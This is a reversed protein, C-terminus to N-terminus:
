SMIETYGVLRALRQLKLADGDKNMVIREATELPTRRIAEAAADITATEFLAITGEGDWARDAPESFEVLLRPLNSRKHLVSKREKWATRSARM